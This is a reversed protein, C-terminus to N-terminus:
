FFFVQSVSTWGSAYCLPHVLLNRIAKNAYPVRLRLPRWLFIVVRSGDEQKTGSVPFPETQSAAITSPRVICAPVYGHEQEVLKEAIAKTLTYTNPVNHTKLLHPTLAELEEDNLLSFFYSLHSLSYRFSLMNKSGTVRHTAVALHLRITTPFVYKDCQLTQGIHHLQLKQTKNNM